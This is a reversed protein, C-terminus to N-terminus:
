DSLCVFAGKLVGVMHLVEADAFDRCILGALEQIRTQIQLESLLVREIREDPLRESDSV